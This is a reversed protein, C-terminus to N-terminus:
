MIKEQCNSKIKDWSFNTYIKQPLVKFGAPQKKTLNLTPIWGNSLTIEPHNKPSFIQFTGVQACRPDQDRARAAYQFAERYRKSRILQRAQRALQSGSENSM